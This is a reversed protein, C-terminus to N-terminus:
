ITLKESVKKITQYQQKKKNSNIRRKLSKVNNWFFQKHQDRRHHLEAVLRTTLAVKEKKKKPNRHMFLHFKSCPDIIKTNLYWWGEMIKNGYKHPRRRKFVELFTGFRSFFLVRWLTSFMWKTEQPMEHMKIVGDSTSRPLLVKLSICM